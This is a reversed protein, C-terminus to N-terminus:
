DLMGGCHPCCRSKAVKQKTQLGRGIRAMETVSPPDDSEILREFDEEPINAVQLAQYMQHRSIGATEALKRRESREPGRKGRFKNPHGSPNERNRRKM